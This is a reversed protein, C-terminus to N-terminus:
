SPNAFLAEIVNKNKVDFYKLVDKIKSFSHYKIPWGTQNEAFLVRLILLTVLGRLILGIYCRLWANKIIRKVDNKKKKKGKESKYKKKNTKEKREKRQKNKSFTIFVSIEAKM